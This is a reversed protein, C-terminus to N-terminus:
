SIKGTIGETLYKGFKAQMQQYHSTFNFSIGNVAERNRSGPHHQNHVDIIPTGDVAQGTV